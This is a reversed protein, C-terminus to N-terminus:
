IKSITMTHKKCDPDSCCTAYPIVTLKGVSLLQNRAITTAHQQKYFVTHVYWMDRNNITAQRDGNERNVM